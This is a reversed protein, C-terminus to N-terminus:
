AYSELSIRSTNICRNPSLSQVDNAMSYSMPGHLKQSFKLTMAFCAHKYTSHVLINLAIFCASEFTFQQAFRQGKM